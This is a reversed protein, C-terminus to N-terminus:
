AQGSKDGGNGQKWDEVRELIVIWCPFGDRSWAMRGGKWVAYALSVISSGAPTLRLYADMAM